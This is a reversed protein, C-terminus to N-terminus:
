DLYFIASLYTQGDNGLAEIAFQNHSIETKPITLNFGNNPANPDKIEPFSKAIGTNILHMSTIAVPREETLLNLSKIGIRHFIVWGSIEVNKGKPSAQIYFLPPIECTKVESQSVKFLHFQKNTHSPHVTELYKLSHFGDCLEKYYRGKNQLKLTSDEVVLIAEQDYQQPNHLFMGMIQLQKQRGHKINKPHSLVKIGNPENLEFALEAATMFYDAIIPQIQQEQRIRKVATALEQWGLSNDLLRAQINSEERSKFSLVLLLLLSSIAGTAIAWKILRRSKSLLITTLSLVPVYSILAWHVTTRLGDSFLSMVVYFLWHVFATILIWSLIRRNQSQQPLSKINKFWLFLVLPTVVILQSLLFSINEIQFNWPNRRGFQFVFLAFDHQYNFVLIPILGLLAIPLSIAIAPKLIDSKSKFIYIFIIGAFFLWIWMRVHVNISLALLVGLVIWDIIKNLQVAKILYYSCWMVFVLLWIDPLAMVAVLMFLPVSLLLLLNINVNNESKHILKNIKWVCVFISLFGIFFLIRVAFYSHGFIKTGLKIMWATWAPLEAYSWALHQSELWYFAEDGFLQLNFILYLQLGIFVGCFVILLKKYMPTKAALMM